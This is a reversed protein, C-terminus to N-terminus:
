INSAIPDKGVLQSLGLTDYVQILSSEEMNRYLEFGDLIPAGLADEFLAEDSHAKVSNISGTGLNSQFIGAASVPLFDEYTIPECSVIGDEVLSDIDRRPLPGSPAKIVFYTFYGLKEKRITEYDDPFNASGAPDPSAKSQITKDYLLRGKPTLAMGRQEIEGFRAKHKGDAEAGDSFAVKEELALFSTQRLLIPCKMFLPGEISEKAHLGRKLMEIQAVEIDVVRPTLHNIHPGRFCVVDAILPHANQLAQYTEKSVTTTRHWRFTELSEKIFEDVQPQSFSSCQEWEAILQICRLSFIQRKKLIGEAQARLKKDEIMEPRLLSTFVRFPNKSLSEKTLPRFCTAHVPLGAVSLDYYGVPYMGLIQFLRRITALEEPKGLRIAGHREVEIRPPISGNLYDGNHRQNIEAVLELLTGYQPVERQYMESLASAFKARIEDQPVAM